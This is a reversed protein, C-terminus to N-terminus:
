SCHQSLLSCLLMQNQFVALCSMPLPTTKWINTVPREYLTHGLLFQLTFPVTEVYWLYGVMM